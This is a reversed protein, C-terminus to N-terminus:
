RIETWRGITWTTDTPSSPDPTKPKFHFEITEKDRTITYSDPNDSILLKDIPNQIVTWGPPDGLDTYRILRPTLELQVVATSRYLGWIHEVEDAKTFNYSKVSDPNSQDITMGTYNLDFLTDYAAPDRHQYATALNGLVWEPSTPPKYIPPPPPGGGKGKIPSFICGSFLVSLFV